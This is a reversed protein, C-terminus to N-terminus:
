FADLLGEAAQALRLADGSLRIANILVTPDTPSLENAIQTLSEASLFSGLVLQNTSSLLSTTGSLVATTGSLVLSHSLSLSSSVSTTPASLVFSEAITLDEGPFVIGAGNLTNQVDTIAVSGLSGLGALDLPFGLNYDRAFTIEPIVTALTGLSVSGSFTLTGGLVVTGAGTKTLGLSLSGGAALEVRLDGSNPDAIGNLWTVADSIETSALGEILAALDLEESLLEETALSTLDAGFQPPLTGVTLVAPAWRFELTEISAPVRSIM